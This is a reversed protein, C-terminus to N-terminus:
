QNGSDADSAGNSEGEGEGSENEGGADGEADKGTLYVLLDDKKLSKWEEAPYGNEEALEQLKDKTLKSLNADGEADERFKAPLTKFEAKRKQLLEADSTSLYKEAFEETMLNGFTRVPRRTKSKKDESIITYIKHQDRLQFTKDSMEIPKTPNPVANVLRQWDNNFTCGACDPKRGFVQSFHGIYASMLGPSSRVQDKGAQILEEVTM